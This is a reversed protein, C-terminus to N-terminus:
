DPLYEAEGEVPPAGVILVTADADGENALQLATGPQVVALSGEPLEVAEREEGLVLTATGELAVFLEEQAHERHRRGRAGPPMRWINARMNRFADSLRVIGREQNGGSPTAWELEDSRFVTYGAV